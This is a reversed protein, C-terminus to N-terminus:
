RAALPAWEQGNWSAIRNISKAGIRTFSGGVILQDRFSELAYVNSNPSTPLASWASGNWRAIRRAQLGDAMTFSGGAYLDGQFVRLCQAAGGTVAGVAHWQRGDWRIVSGASKGGVTFVLGVVILEGDFICLAYPSGTFNDEFAHWGSGDWRAIRNAPVGGIETFDGVVILDNDFEIADVVSVNGGTIGAGLSQWVQGDFRAIGNVQQGGICEFEGGAILDGKYTCLALVDELPPQTSSGDFCGVGGALNIWSRGDWAALHRVPVDGAHSMLGGLVLLEAQPGDGDPDWTTSEWVFGNVGMLPEGPLWAEDCQGRAPAVTVFLSAIVLGRLPSAVSRARLTVMNNDKFQFHPRAPRNMARTMM